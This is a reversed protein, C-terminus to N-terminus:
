QRAGEGAENDAAEDVSQQKPIEVHEAGPSGAPDSPRSAGAAPAEDAGSGARDETEGGEEGGDASGTSAEVPEKASAEVPQKARVADKAPEGDAGGESRAAACGTAREEAPVEVAAEAKRRFRAFVGM